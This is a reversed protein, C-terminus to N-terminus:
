EENPENEEVNFETTKNKMYTFQQIAEARIEPTQIQQECKHIADDLLKILDEYTRNAIKLQWKFDFYIKRMAEADRVKVPDGFKDALAATLRKVMEPTNDDPINPLPADNNSM